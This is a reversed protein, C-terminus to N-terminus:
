WAFPAASPRTNAPNMIFDFTSKVDASTLPRGDQFHVGRRLHFVYTLPDPTDWSEALDGHLNMQADRELLSSFLLGDIHQPNRTPPTAPTSIPPIPNSSSVDPHLSRVSPYALLRFNRRHLSHSSFSLFLDFVSPM